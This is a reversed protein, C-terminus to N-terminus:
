KLTDGNTLKQFLLAKLLKLQQGINWFEICIKYLEKHNIEVICHKFCDDGELMISDNNYKFIENVFEPFKQPTDDKKPHFEIIMYIRNNGDGVDLRKLTWEKNNLKIKM